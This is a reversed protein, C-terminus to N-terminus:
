RAPTTTAPTPSPTPSPSATPSPTPSPSATPSPTPTPSPSAGGSLREVMRDAFGMIRELREETIDLAITVENGAANTELNALVAGAPSIAVLPNSTLRGLAERAKTSLETAAEESSTVAVLTMGLGRSVRAGFGLTRLETLHPVLVNAREAGLLRTLSAQWHEPIHAVAVIERSRALRDWLPRISEDRGFTSERGAIARLAEVVVEEHGAVIGKAGVFAARSPGNASAVAPVGELEIERLEGGDETVASRLCGGLADHDFEGEAVFGVHDLAGPEGTVFATVNSLQALPDFGCREALGRIAADEGTDVVFRRWITSGLLAPADVWAAMEASAPVRDLPHEPLRANKALLYFGGAAFAGVVLLSILLNRSGKV